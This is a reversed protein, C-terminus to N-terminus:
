STRAQGPSTAMRLACATTPRQSLRSRAESQTSRPSCAASGFWTALLTHCLTEKGDSSWRETGANAADMIGVALLRSLDGPDFPADDSPEFEAALEAQAKRMKDAPFMGFRVTLRENEDFTGYVKAAFQKIRIEALNRAERRRRIPACNDFPDSM